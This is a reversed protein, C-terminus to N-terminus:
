MCNENNVDPTRFNFAENNTDELEELLELELNYYKEYRKRFKEFHNLKLEINRETKGECNFNTICNEQAIAENKYLKIYTDRHERASAYYDIPYAILLTRVLNKNIARATKNKALLSHRDEYKSEMLDDIRSLEYDTLVIKTTKGTKKSKVSVIMEHERNDHNGNRTPTCDIFIYGENNNKDQNHTNEIINKVQEKTLNEIFM